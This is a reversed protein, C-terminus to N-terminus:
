KSKVIKEQYLIKKDDIISVIYMGEMLKDMSLNIKYGELKSSMITRGVMDSIVVQGEVSQNIEINLQGKVPNPFIKAQIDGVEIQKGRNIWSSVDSSTNSVNSIIENTFIYYLAKAYGSYRHEKEAITKVEALLKNAPKYSFGKEIRDLNIYQVKKFDTWEESDQILNNLYTRAGEINNEFVYSSYIAMRAKDTNKDKYLDRAADYDGQTLFVNFLNGTLNQLCREYTQILHNVVDQTYISVDGGSNL